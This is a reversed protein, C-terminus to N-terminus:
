INLGSGPILSMRRLVPDIAALIVRLTQGLEFKRGTRKGSLVGPSKRRYYDGGLDAFAVLGQVFYDDLEVILGAKTIDVIIGGFEEGLKDKLFRYIRWEVVDKEAAAAKREQGSSHLAIGALGPSEPHKGLIAQKLLRQVVLDPYRRIPSTFHTYDTKALGYHGENEDSYQALRMARLVQVNVFKEEPKGEAALIAWQLDKSRIKESEPLVINFHALIERLKELDAVEPRPHIRYLTAIKKRGLYSAVAVNAVVMFEEIVKHAENQGLAAITQLKGEEYVLEPEPLDFDLSGRAVREERLIRALERMLELDPVLAAYKRREVPDGQFIKFVSTYTLRAATRIASPHFEVRLVNGAGGIDMVVSLTLRDESPRLSCVDNSLREPLMPLTLDPFYVSTGREYAERDLASGPRVYCSVDAIHVGLRYVDKEIRLISVADDFDQANEGDITFTTWGRYDVRDSEAAGLRGAVEEAEALAEKPFDVALGYKRIIVKTDVGPDDPLGLVESLTLCSRDAAVIMGPTPFLDGRSTLPIEEASPSDFALLFPRGYRENYIGLLQKKDKKLIRVVRGEPKGKKGKERSLVEVIDGQVAGKAFRAPVFIDEGDGTERIVFGFGRGSTEFRGRVLDAQLPLLFRNKVQRILGQSELNRLRAELKAREKRPIKLEKFIDQLSLGQRNRRLLDLIRKDM